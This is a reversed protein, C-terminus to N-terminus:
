VTYIQSQEQTNPPRHHLPEHTFDRLAYYDGPPHTNEKSRLVILGDYLQHLSQLLQRGKVGHSMRVHLKVVGKCQIPLLVMAYLVSHCVCNRDM